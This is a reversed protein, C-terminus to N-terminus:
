EPDPWVEEVDIDVATLRRLKRDRWAAHRTTVTIWRTFENATSPGGLALPWITRGEVPFELQNVGNDVAHLVGGAQACLLALRDRDPEAELATDVATGVGALASLADYEDRLVVKTTGDERQRAALLPRRLSIWPGLDTRASLRSNFRRCRADWRAIDEAIDDGLSSAVAHLDIEVRNGLRRGCPLLPQAPDLDPRVLAFYAEVIGAPVTHADASM